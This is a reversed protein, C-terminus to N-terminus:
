PGKARIYAQFDVDCRVEEVTFVTCPTSDDFWTAASVSSTKRGDVTSWELM